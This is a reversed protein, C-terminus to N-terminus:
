RAPERLLFVSFDRPHYDHRLRVWPTLTRCFTIVKEPNAYFEGADREPAWSSLSNFSVGRGAMQWMRTVAHELWDQGGNRYTYFMGSAVVFDFKEDKLVEPDTISGNVFRKSPFRRRAGEVLKDTLDIGVYETDIQQRELWGALDGLGCGVDLVSRGALNGVESLVSFRLMQGQESGWNLALYSSGHIEMLKRYHATTRQEEDVSM